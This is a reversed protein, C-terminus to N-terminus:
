AKPKPRAPADARRVRVWPDRSDPQRMKSEFSRAKWKSIEFCSTEASVRISGVDRSTVGGRRCILAMLRRANAGAKEGFNIEFRDYIKGDRCPQDPRNPRPQDPRNPRPQDPRNPVGPRHNGPGDRREPRPARIEVDFPERAMKPPSRQLLTAVVDVADRAELLRQANEVHDDTRGEGSDIAAWLRRRQRKELTKRVVKPTPIDRWEITVNAEALLRGTQRAENRPCLLVCHGKKGARGTRGSRHTYGEHNKVTETHVVTGVDPVDLGRAAVDTAVLVSVVGSRFNALTRTRQEQKLEGSLALASFGDKALREALEATEFRTNVFVLTRQGEDLLMLNVLAAYRNYRDVVYGIHEIDKNAAGLRTGEVHIPNKQYRKALRKIGAPFTASLLHTRRDTPTVALIGELEERFGMDLMRDAEDLVLERVGSADLVGTRIHDLLRGPTGVLVRPRRAMNQRDKWLSTGGTVCDLRVGDAAAYLWELEKRVQDALERTPVIILVSPGRPVSADRQLLGTAMALGLAVTKGSGTQSTILLDRGADAADLAAIQVTTLETFGRTRLARRLVDPVRDFGDSAGRDATGASATVASETVASASGHNPSADDPLVSSAGSPLVSPTPASASLTPPANAWHPTNM